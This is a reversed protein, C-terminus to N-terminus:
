ADAHDEKRALASYELYDYYTKASRRRRKPTVSYGNKFLIMAVTNRDNKDSILLEGTILEKNGM